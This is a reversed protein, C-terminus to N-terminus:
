EELVYEFTLVSLVVFVIDCAVLLQLWGGAGSLSNSSLLLATAKVSAVIVPVSLPLLLLPLMVERARTHATMAAFLTGPAVLGLTGLPIVMLLLVPFVALNYLVWFVPVVIAEVTTLFVLNSLMKAVYIGSRDLPALMLGQLSDRDKEVAFSRNLGLIGAFAFAVWLLGPALRATDTPALEFAFSFVLTVILAFVLMSSLMERTRLEALIDKWVITGVKTLYARM